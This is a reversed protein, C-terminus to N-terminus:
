YYWTWGAGFYSRKPVGQMLESYSYLIHCESAGPFRWGLKGTYKYNEKIRYMTSVGAWIRSVVKSQGEAFVANSYNEPSYVFGGSVYSGGEPEVPLTYKVGGRLYNSLLLLESGSPDTCTRNVYHVYGSVEPSLQHRLRISAVLVNRREATIAKGDRYEWELSTEIDLSLPIPKWNQKAGLSFTTLDFLGGAVGPNSKHNAGASIAIDENLQYTARLGSFHDQQLEPAQRVLTFDQLDFEYPTISLVKSLHYGSLRWSEFDIDAKLYGTHQLDREYVSLPQWVPYLAIKEGGSYLTNRYGLRAEIHSFRQWWSLRMSHYLKQLREPSIADGWVLDDDVTLTGGSSFRQEVRLRNRWEIEDAVSVVQSNYWISPRACLWGVTLLLLILTYRKTSMGICLQWM